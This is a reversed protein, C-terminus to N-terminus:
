IHDEQRCQGALGASGGNHSVAPYLQPGIYIRHGYSQRGSRRGAALPGQRASNKRAFLLGDGVSLMALEMRDDALAYENFDRVARADPDPDSAFIRGHM